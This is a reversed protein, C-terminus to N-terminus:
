FEELLSDVAFQMMTDALERLSEKKSSEKIFVNTSKREDTYSGSEMSRSQVFSDSWLIKKDRNRIMKVLVRAKIVYTQALMRKSALGGQAETEATGFKVSGRTLTINEVKGDIYADANARVLTLKGSRSEMHQRLSNTFFVEAGGEITNNKFVPVSVTNVGEKEWRNKLSTFGYGCSFVYLSASILVSSM